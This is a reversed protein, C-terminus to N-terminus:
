LMVIDLDLYTQVKFQTNKAEEKNSDTEDVIYKCNICLSGFFCM